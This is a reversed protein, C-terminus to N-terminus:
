WTPVGVGEIKWRSADGLQQSVTEFIDSSRFPSKRKRALLFM